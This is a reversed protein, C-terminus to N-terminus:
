VILGELRTVRSLDSLQFVSQLISGGGGRRDGDSGGGGSVVRGRDCGGGHSGFSKNGMLVSGTLEVQIQFQVKRSFKVTSITITCDSSFQATKKTNMSSTM